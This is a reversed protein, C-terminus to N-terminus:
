KEERERKSSLAKNEKPVQPQTLELSAGFAEMKSLLKKRETELRNMYKPYIKNFFKVKGLAETFQKDTMLTISNIENKINPFTEKLFKNKDFSKNSSVDIYTFILDPNVGVKEFVMMVSVISIHSYTYLFIADTLFSTDIIKECEDSFEEKTMGQLYKFFSKKELEYVLGLLAKYPCFVYFEYDLIYCLFFEYEFLTVFGSKKTKEDIEKLSPFLQIMKDLTVNLQSVKGGFYIVANIMDQPDYDVVAKKLFFRRYYTLAYTKLTRVRIGSNIIKIIRMCLYQIINKEKDLSSILRNAKIISIEQTEKLNKDQNQVEAETEKNLENIRRLILKIKHKSIEDLENKTKIWSHFQTSNAFFNM